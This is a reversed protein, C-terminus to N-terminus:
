KILEKFQEPTLYGYYTAGTYPIYGQPYASERAGEIDKATIIQSRLALICSYERTHFYGFGLEYYYYYKTSLTTDKPTATPSRHNDMLTDM